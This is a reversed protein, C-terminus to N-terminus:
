ADFEDRRFLLLGTGFDPVTAKLDFGLHRLWGQSAVNHPHVLCMASRVGSARLAPIMVRRIYKTATRLAPYGRETKFGWVVALQPEPGPRAGFAMVPLADDLVVKRFPSEWADRALSVYDDIDRTVAMEERDAACLWSGVYLLDDWTPENVTRM